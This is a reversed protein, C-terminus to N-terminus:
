GQNLSRHTERCTPALMDPGSKGRLDDPITGNLRFWSLREIAALLGRDATTHAASSNRSRLAPQRRTIQVHKKAREVNALLIREVDPSGDQLEPPLTVSSLTSFRVPGSALQLLHRHQHAATVRIEVDRSSSDL